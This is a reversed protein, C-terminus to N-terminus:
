RVGQGLPAVKPQKGDRAASIKGPTEALTRKTERDKREAKEAMEVARRWLRMAEEALGLRWCTDGAHDLIVPHLEDPDASVVQDFITKAEAFRGRKYLVWALSDKFAIERPRQALAKRILREAEQLKIGRDAWSYGLDNNVGPDDPDLKSMKVLLAVAEEQKEMSGLAAYLLRLVAVDEPAAKAFKRARALADRKREAVLLVQVVTRRAVSLAEAKAPASAPLKEQRALWEEAVESAQDYKKHELLVGILILNPRRYAPDEAIWKRGFELLQDFKGERGYIMLKTGKLRRVTREDGGRIWEDAAEHAKDYAKADMLVALLVDRPQSSKPQNRLWKKAYAIADDYRKARGYTLLKQRRLLSLITRDPGSAIWRDLLENAKEHSGAAEYVQLAKFRLRNREAPKMKENLWKEVLTAAQEHRKIRSLSRLLLDRMTRGIQEVRAIRAVAKAAREEAKGEVLAGLYAGAVRVDEPKRRHLPELADAAALYKRQNILLAAKLTGAGVHNPERRLIGQIKQLAARAREAPIPDGALSQPLEFQLQLLNVEPDRPADQGLADAVKRARGQRNTRLYHRALKVRAPISGRNSRLFSGLLRLSEDGRGRRNYHEFLEVVVEPNDPTLRLASGLRNLANRNKGRLSYARGLLLLTPIHDEKKHRAQELKGIAGDIKGAELLNRGALYLGLYGDAAIKSVESLLDQRQQSDGGALFIRDLAEYAPWFEKDAQVARRLLKIAEARDGIARTLMGALTWFAPKLKGEAEEASTALKAPLHKPVEKRALHRMEQFVQASEPADAALLEALKGAGAASDGARFYLRSLRVVARGSEPVRSLHKSLMDAAAAIPGMEAAIEAMAIVFASDKGGRNLYAQLLRAPAAPDKRARCLEGALSLARARQSPEALMEMIIKEARAFEGSELMAKVALPGAQPDSKDRRYARELVVAAKEPKRLRLLLRGEALMAKEPQEVWRRLRLRELYVRGHKSIAEGLRQYCELAATWYGLRELVEALGALVEATDPNAGKADSCLLATRLYVLAQDFKGQMTAYRGLLLQVRVHDPAKAVSKRLYPEARGRDDLGAFALGLGRQVRPCNPAFGRARELLERAKDYNAKALQEEARAVPDVAREPLKGADPADVPRAVPPALEALALEAKAPLPAPRTTPAGSAGVGQAEPAPQCALGSLAATCLCLVKCPAGWRM